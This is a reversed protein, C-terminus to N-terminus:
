IYMWLIFYFFFLSFFSLFFFPTPIQCVFPAFAGLMSWRACLAETTTGAFGCVDAGTMPIQFISTFAMMARIAGRYHTWASVNDGLWKGVASGAGSFTSRTIIFPRLAPRRAQM